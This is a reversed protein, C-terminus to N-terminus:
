KSDLPQAPEEVLLSRQGVLIEHLSLALAELQHYDVVLRRQAASRRAEGGAGRIEHIDDTVCDITRLLQCLLSRMGAPFVENNMLNNM